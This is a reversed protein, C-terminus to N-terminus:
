APTTSATDNAAAILRRQVDFASFTLTLQPQTPLSLHRGGRPFDRAIPPRIAFDTFNGGSVSPLKVLNAGDGVM